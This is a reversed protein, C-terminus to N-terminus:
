RSWTRDADRGRLDRGIGGVSRHLFDQWDLQVSYLKIRGASLL